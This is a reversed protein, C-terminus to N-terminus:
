VGISFVLFPVLISMPDIGFGMAALLGLLWVVPLLAVLLALVTLNVSRSYLWLLVATILFALGFFGIVTTLGDMVDGLVKAFGVINIEIKDSGFQTRIAELKSAVARYDLHKGTQPDIELLDARVMASKLDNSVLRGIQGSKAVNSRVHALGAEDPTFRSPIIVEGVFGNETVEIYRVNPTFLSFVQGRNVGPTFFVEDTVARLTKLFEENYIDGEGKWRVSVLVRNAGSFTTSHELFAAMYSHRLPILKNFGADLHTNLALTGLVLTILTTIVAISNRWAILTRAISAIMAETRSAAAPTNM